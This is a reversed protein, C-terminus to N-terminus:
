GDLPFCFRSGSSNDREQVISDDRRPHFSDADMLEAPGSHKAVFFDQRWFKLRVFSEDLDFSGTDVVEVNVIAGAKVPASMMLPRQRVNRAGFGRSGNDFYCRVHGGYLWTIANGITDGVAVARIALEACQGSPM